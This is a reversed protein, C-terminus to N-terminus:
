LRSASKHQTNIFLRFTKPNRQEAKGRYDSDSGWGSGSAARVHLAVYSWRSWNNREEGCFSPEHRLTGVYIICEAELEPNVRRKDSSLGASGPIWVFPLQSVGWVKSPKHILLSVTLSPVTMWIQPVTILICKPWAGQIKQCKQFTELLFAFTKHQTIRECKM